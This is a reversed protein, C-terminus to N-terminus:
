IAIKVLAPNTSALFSPSQTQYRLFSAAKRSNPRDSLLVSYPNIKYRLCDKSLSLTPKAPQSPPM